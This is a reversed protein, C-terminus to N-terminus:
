VERNKLATRNPSWGVGATRLEVHPDSVGKLSHKRQCSLASRQLRKRSVQGETAPETHSTLTGEGVAKCDM